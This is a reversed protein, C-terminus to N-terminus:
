QWYYENIEQALVPARWLMMAAPQLMEIGLTFWDWTIQMEANLTPCGMGEKWVM